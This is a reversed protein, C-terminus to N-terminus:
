EANAAEAQDAKLTVGFHTALRKLDSHEFVRRGSLRTQPEPVAGISYVNQIRYPQVSLLRCIDKLSYMAPM